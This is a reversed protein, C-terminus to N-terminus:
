KETHINRLVKYSPKINSIFLLTQNKVISQCQGSNLQMLVKLMCCQWIKTDCFCLWQQNGSCYHICHSTPPMWFPSLYAQHLPFSTYHYGPFSISQQAGVESFPLPENSKEINGQLIGGGRRWQEWEQYQFKQLQFSSSFTSSGLACGM